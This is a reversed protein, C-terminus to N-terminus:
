ASISARDVDDQTGRLGTNAANRDQPRSVEIRKTNTDQEQLAVTEIGLWDMVVSYIYERIEQIEPADTEKVQHTWFHHSAGAVMQVPLSYKPSTHLGLVSWPDVNGNVSLLRSGASIELGGYYDRTAQVNEYVNTINYAAQCIKLDQDVTHYHMAYPCTEHTCTQYFGVETCTQWLWSRWGFGKVVPQALEQLMEQFDVSRCNDKDSDGRQKDAVQALVDLATLSPDTSTTVIYHCLKEINCLEEQCSPDNGQAYIEILGDGLL